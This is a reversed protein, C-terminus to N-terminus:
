SSYFEVLENLKKWALGGLLADEAMELAQSFRTDTAVRIAVAANLLVVERAPGTVSGGLIGRILQANEAPSGGAPIGLRARIPRFDFSRTEGGDVETVRTEAAVSVEDLGDLGHVVWARRCGLRLLVHALKETLEPAFVGVVQSPASAPNTLPGLLNFITRRGLERRITAVRKMAPHHLPAYLFCIGLENLARESVDPPRDLNLGLEVFVDASGSKSTVARNGHKAVPVGAGAAVLAAATSINFTPRGGGTGATDVFKEHVSRVPIALRRMVSAFGVIESETEGKDALAVLFESILSDPQDSSLIAELAVVAQQEDLDEGQLVQNKMEELM